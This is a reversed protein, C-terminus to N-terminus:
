SLACCFSWLAASLIRDSNILLCWRTSEDDFLLVVVLVALLLVFLVGILVVLM